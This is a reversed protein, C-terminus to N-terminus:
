RIRLNSNNSIHICSCVIQVFLEGIVWFWTSLYFGKKPSFTRCYILFSLLDTVKFTSIWEPIGSSNIYRVLTVVQCHNRQWNIPSCIFVFIYKCNTIRTRSLVSIYNNLSVTSYIESESKLVVCGKGLSVANIIAISLCCADCTGRDKWLLRLNGKSSFSWYLFSIFSFLFRMCTKYEKLDSTKRKMVKKFHLGVQWLFQINM